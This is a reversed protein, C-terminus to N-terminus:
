AFRIVNKIGTPPTGYDFACIEHDTGCVGVELIRIKVQNPDTLPPEPPDILDLSRRTPTVAIAKMAISIGRDVPRNRTPPDISPAEGYGTAADHYNRAARM